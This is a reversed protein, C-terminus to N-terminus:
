VASDAPTEEKKIFAASILGIVAYMVPGFIAGMVLMRKLTFQKELRAIIQDHASEPYRPNSLMKEEQFLRLKEILDPDIVGMLIYSYITNLFTAIVGMVLAILFIQGFTAYGGLYEKRYAVLCYILAALIILSSVWRAWSATSMDLIYFVVGILVSVFGLIAGYILAPKWFPVNAKDEM